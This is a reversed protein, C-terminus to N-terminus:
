QCPMPPKINLEDDDTQRANPADLLFYRVSRKIHGWYRGALGLCLRARLDFFRPRPYTVVRLVRSSVIRVAVPCIVSLFLSFLLASLWSSLLLPSFALSSRSVIALALPARAVLRAGRLWGDAAAASFM